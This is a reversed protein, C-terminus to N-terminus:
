DGLPQLSPLSPFGGSGGLCCRENIHPSCQSGHNLVREKLRRQEVLLVRALEPVIVRTVGFGPFGMPSPAKLQVPLPGGASCLGGRPRPLSDSPGRRRARHKFIFIVEHLPHAEM